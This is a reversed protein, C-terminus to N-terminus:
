KAAEFAAQIAAGGDPATGDYGAAVFRLDVHPLALSNQGGPSPLNLLENVDANRSSGRGNGNGCGQAAPIALNQDGLPMDSFVLTEVQFGNPDGLFQFSAPPALVFPGFYIPNANSGIYCDNGLWPTDLHLKVPLKFVPVPLGFLFAPSVSVVDGASEVTIKLTQANGKGNGEKSSKGRGPHISITSPESEVTTTGPARGLCTNEQFCDPEDETFATSGFQVGLRSLPIARDRIQLTGGSASAATCVAIERSPDNLAPNDTPCATFADYQNTQVALAASSAVLLSVMAILLAGVVAASRRMMPKTM